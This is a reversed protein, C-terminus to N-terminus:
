QLVIMQRHLADETRTNCIRGAKRPRQLQVALVGYHDAGATVTRHAFADHIFGDVKSRDIMERDDIEALVVANRHACRDFQLRRM